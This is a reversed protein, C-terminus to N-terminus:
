RSKDAAELKDLIERYTLAAGGNRDKFEDADPRSAFAFVFPTMSGKPMRSSGLVYFADPAAVQQRTRYDLTTVRTVDEGLKKVLRRACNICCAHMQPETKRYLVFETESKAADMGCLQCITSHRDKGAYAPPSPALLLGALALLPWLNKWEFPTKM